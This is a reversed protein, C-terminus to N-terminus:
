LPKEKVTLFMQKYKLLHFATPITTPEVATTGNEFVATQMNLDVALQQSSLQAVATQVVDTPRGSNSRCSNVPVRRKASGRYLVTIPDQASWTEAGM